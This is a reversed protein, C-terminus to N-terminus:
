EGAEMRCLLDENDREAILWMALRGAMHWLIRELLFWGAAAIMSGCAPDDRIDHEVARAMHSVLDKRQLQRLDNRNRRMERSTVRVFRRSLPAAYANVAAQETASINAGSAVIKATEEHWSRELECALQWDTM